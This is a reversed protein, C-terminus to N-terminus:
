GDLRTKATWHCKLRGFSFYMIGRDHYILFMIVSDTYIEIQKRESDLIFCFLFTHECFVRVHLDMSKADASTAGEMERENKLELNSCRERLLDVNLIRQDSRLQAVLFGLLRWIGTKVGYDVQWDKPPLPLPPKIDHRSKAIGEREMNNNHMPSMPMHLVAKGKWIGNALPM